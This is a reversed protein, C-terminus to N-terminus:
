KVFNDYYARNIYEHVKKTIMGFHKIYYGVVEWRTTFGLEEITNIVDAYNIFELDDM